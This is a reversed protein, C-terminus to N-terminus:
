DRGFWRAVGQALPALGFHVAPVVLAGLALGFLGYVAASALWHAAPAAVPARAAFGGAADAWAQPWAVGFHALGHSLISGGVWIMAAVGVVSLVSMLAPMLRVLGRGAARVLATRASRALALGMDDAKVILAVAGYVGFTMLIGVLALSLAKTWFDGAEISALAITMIEASLIFDTRIAGSVRQKEFDAASADQPAADDGGHGFLAEVVKEAGEYCLFLGGLMLLPEVAGPAFADLALALPALFVLKNRLSGLAIKGVIPLERKPDLGAVFRPTVAADDIVVGAAKAGAAASQGIADDISAAAAKAIVSIDDLLALLGTAM